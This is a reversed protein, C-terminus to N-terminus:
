FWRSGKHLKKWKWIAYVSWGYLALIIASEIRAPLGHIPPANPNRNSPLFLTGTLLGLLASLAYLTFVLLFFIVICAGVIDGIHLRRPKRPETPVATGHYLMSHTAVAQKQQVWWPIADLWKRIQENYDEGTDALTSGPSSAQEVQVAVAVKTGGVTPEIRFKATALHGACHGTAELGDPIESVKWDALWNGVFARVAEHVIQPEAQFVAEEIFEKYKSDM